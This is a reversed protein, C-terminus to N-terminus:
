GRLDGGFLGTPKFLLVGIFILFVLVRNTSGPLYFSGFVQVIGIVVGGVLAGPFSGLGGLVTVVFATSLYFDGLYPDFRQFLPITAGALGALAVGIGFTVLDIRRINIGVYKASERNDATARIARGLTTYYLFVLMLAVACLTVVLGLLRGVPVFVGYLEIAGLDLDLSRPTPSFIIQVAAVIILLWGLTVILQRSGPADVIPAITSRHILMGIGFLLVVALPVAVLLPVGLSAVAYWVAYMGVVMLAGHAINIVDMVGWIMTLGLGVLGYISGLLLGFVLLQVFITPDM